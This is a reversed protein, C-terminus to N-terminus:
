EMSNTNWYGHNENRIVVEGNMLDECTYASQGDDDMRMMEENDLEM